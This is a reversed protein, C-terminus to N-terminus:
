AEYYKSLTERMLGKSTLDAPTQDMRANMDLFVYDDFEAQKWAIDQISTPPTTDGQSEGAPPQKVPNIYKTYVMMGKNLWGVIKNMSAGPAKSFNSFASTTNVTVMQVSASIYNSLTPSVTGSLTQEVVLQGATEQSMGSDLAQKLIEKKAEDMAADSLKQWMAYIGTVMAVYGVLESLKSLIVLSSGFSVAMGYQGNKSLYQAILGMLLTGLTLNLALAGFFMAAYAFGLTPATAGVLSFSAGGTEPALVIAVVIVVIMLIASVFCKWGHCSEQKYDTDVSKALMKSFDAPKLESAADKRLYVVPIVSTTDSAYIPLKSYSLLLEGPLVPNYERLLAEVQKFFSYPDAPLALAKDKVLTVLAAASVDNADVVRKYKYSIIASVTYKRNQNNNRYGRNNYTSRSSVEKVTKSVITTTSTFLVNSTDMISVFTCPNVTENYTIMSNAYVPTAKVRSNLETDTPAVVAPDYLSNYGGEVMDIIHQDSITNASGVVDGAFEQTYQMKVEYEEDLVSNSNVYTAVDQDSLTPATIHYPKLYFWASVVHDWSKAQLEEVSTGLLKYIEKHATDAPVGGQWMYMKDFVEVGDVLKTPWYRLVTNKVKLNRVYSQQIPTGLDIEM